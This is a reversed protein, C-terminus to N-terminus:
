DRAGKVSVAVALLRSSLVIGNDQASLLSIDFRIRKEVMRLNITSGGILGDENETVILFSSKRAHPRLIPLISEMNRSVFVLHADGVQEATKASYIEISRGEISRQAVIDVLENKVEESGIVCIRFPSRADVFRSDPWTSYGLFKYVMAAKIQYDLSPEQAYVKPFTGSFVCALLITWVFRKALFYKWWCVLPKVM